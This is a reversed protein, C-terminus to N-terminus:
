KPPPAIRFETKIRRLSNKLLEYQSPPLSALDIDRFNDFNLGVLTFAEHAKNVWDPNKLKNMVDQLVTPNEVDAIYGFWYRLWEPEELGSTWRKEGSIRNLLDQNENEDAMHGLIEMYKKHKAAREKLNNQASLKGEPTEIVSFLRSILAVRKIHFDTALLGIPKESALLDPNNNITYAFNELTNTSSNEIKIAQEISTGYKEQYLNGFRRVIIDKMLGAESPWNNVREPPLTKVFDPMTKGGSLIIEDTIGSCLAAGAALANQRGWRNLALRGLRQWEQRKLEILQQKEQTSLNTNNRIKNLEPLSASKELTRFNPENGHLPDKKFNEWEEKQNKTLEDELLVPKVPGQGFVIITEFKKQPKIAEPQPTPIEKPENM